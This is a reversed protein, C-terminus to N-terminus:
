VESTQKSVDGGPEAAPRIEACREAAQRAELEIEQAREICQLLAASRAAATSRELKASKESASFLQPIPAAAVNPLCCTRNVIQTEVIRTVVPSSPALLKTM